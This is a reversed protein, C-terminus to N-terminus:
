HKQKNYEYEMSRSRIDPNTLVGDLYIEGRLDMDIEEKLEAIEKPTLVEPNIGNERCKRKILVDYNRNKLGLHNDSKTEIVKQIIEGKRIIYGTSSVFELPKGVRRLKSFINNIYPATFGLEDAGYKDCLASPSGFFEFQGDKEVYIVNRAM